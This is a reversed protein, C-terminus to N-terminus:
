ITGELEKNLEAKNHDGYIHQILDKGYQRQLENLLRDLDTSGVLIQSAPKELIIDMAMKYINGAEDNRAEVQKRQILALLQDLLYDHRWETLGTGNCKDCNNSNEYDFGGGGCDNCCLAMADREVITKLEERLPNNM